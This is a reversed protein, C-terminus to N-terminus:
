LGSTAPEFGAGAVVSAFAGSDNPNRPTRGYLALDIFGEVRYGHDPDPHVALRREGLLMRLARRAGEGAEAFWDRLQGVRGEAIEFLAGRDIEPAQMEALRAELGAREEERERIMKAYVRVEGTEAALRALNCLEKELERIRSRAAAAQQPTAQSRRTVADAVREVIYRTTDPTLVHDRVGAVFTAELDAATVVLDSSCVAPGRDRRWGCGYGSHSNRTFFGGGCEGCELFGSLLRRARTRHGRGHGAFHGASTRRHHGARRALEHQAAHWAAPEVIEWSPDEARLWESEPREHRKRKGTEHDKVWESKNWVYEGRYIPNLILARLASIAWGKARPSEIGDANLGHAIARLSEGSNFEDFIRRVIPAQSEDVVLRKGGEVDESRYGFPRGGANLGREAKGRLGRHTDLALKKLYEQGLIGMVQSGLNELDLGTSSEVAQRKHLNVRNRLWGLDETNRSIRSWDYALLVDWEDIRAVLNLLGPRNHRSAGSIGADQVILDPVVTWGRSEAFRQCHAIQDAPSAESQKDTSMRAYIAVKM